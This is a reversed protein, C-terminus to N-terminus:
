ATKHIIIAFKADGGGESQRMNWSSLPTSANRLSINKSATLTFIFTPSGFQGRNVQGNITAANTGYAWAGIATGDSENYLKVDAKANTTSMTFPINLLYTGAPLTFYGTTASVGSVGGTSTAVFTSTTATNDTSPMAMTEGTTTILIINNGGGAPTQWSANTGDSTLVQGNSGPSNTAQIKDTNLNSFNNDVETWSLTDGKGARTVITSM